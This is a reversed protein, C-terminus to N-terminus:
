NFKNHYLFYSVHYLHNLFVTFKFVSLHLQTQDINISNLLGEDLKEYRQAGNIYSM